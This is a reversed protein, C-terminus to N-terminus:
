WDEKIHIKVDDYFDRYEEKFDGSEEPELDRADAEDYADDDQNESMRMLTYQDM